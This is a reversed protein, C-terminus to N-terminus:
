FEFKLSTPHEGEQLIHNICNDIVKILKNRDDLNKFNLEKLNYRYNELRNTAIVMNSNKCTLLFRKFEKRIYAIDTKNDLNIKILNGKNHTRFDKRDEINLFNALLITTEKNM